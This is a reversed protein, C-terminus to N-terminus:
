KLVALKRTALPKEDMVLTYTYLGNQLNSVNVELSSRNKSIAYNGVERGTIDRIIIHAKNARAPLAYPIIASESAPNPYSQGLYVKGAAVESELGSIVLPGPLSLAPPLGPIKVKAVYFGENYNPAPTVLGRGGIIFSSDPLTEMTIAQIQSALSSTFPYTNLLVGTASFRYLFFRNGPTSGAGKREFALMVVSGDTLERSRSFTVNNPVAHNIYHWVPQLNANVKVVMGLKPSAGVVSTDIEAALLFGGDSLPTVGCFSATVRENRSTGVITLKRGLVSDGNQNLLLLKLRTPAGTHGFMVLKGSHTHQIDALFDGPTWDYGKRWKLNGLSDTRSLAFNKNKGSITNVGGLYYGSDPATLLLYGLESNSRAYPMTYQLMGNGTYKQLITGTLIPSPYRNTTYITFGKGTPQKVGIGGTQLLPGNRLWLTDGNPKVLILMSQYGPNILYSGTLIINGERTLTSSGFGRQTNGLKYLRENVLQQGYGTQVLGWFGLLFFLIRM